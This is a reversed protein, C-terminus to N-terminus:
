SYCELSQGTEEWGKLKKVKIIECNESEIGHVNPENDQPVVLVTHAQLIKQSIKSLINDRTGTM